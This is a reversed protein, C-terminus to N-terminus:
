WWGGTTTATRRVDYLWVCFRTRIVRIWHAISVFWPCVGSDFSQNSWSFIGEASDGRRRSACTMLLFIVTFGTVYCLAAPLLLNDIICTIIAIVQLSLYRSAGGSSTAPLLAVVLLYDGFM